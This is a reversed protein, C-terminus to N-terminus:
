SAHSQAVAAANRPAAADGGVIVYGFKAEASPASAFAFTMSGQTMTELHWALGAADENLPILLALRGARCRQDLITLGDSGAALSATGTNATEGRLAANAALALSLMQGPTPSTSHPAFPPM